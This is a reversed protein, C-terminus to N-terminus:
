DERRAIEVADAFTMSLDAVSTTMLARRSLGLRGLDAGIPHDGLTLRAGGLRTRTGSTSTLRWPTRRTVGDLQSYAQLVTDGSADPVPIGRGVSLEAVLEGDISIRGRKAASDHDVDFQGIVKPFGWIGRGAARTFDGDVPLEHILAHADGAALSRLASIRSARSGPPQVLFCVGFENYPGLDGDIYDVFVLMCPTRGRRIELPRLDAAGRSAIADSVAASSATFGAVFCRASRIEVPMTVPTGLVDHVSATTM